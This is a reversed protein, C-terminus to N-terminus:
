LMGSVIVRVQKSRILVMVDVNIIIHPIFNFM